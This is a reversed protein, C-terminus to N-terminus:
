SGRSDSPKTSESPLQELQVRLLWELYERSPEGEGKYQYGVIREEEYYALNNSKRMTERYKTILVTGDEYSISYSVRTETDYVTLSIRPKTLNNLNM